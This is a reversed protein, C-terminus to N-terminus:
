QSEGRCEGGHKCHDACGLDLRPNRIERRCHTCTRVPEDKWFEIQTGCNPCPIFYIDDPTWYRLDQGPCKHDAM